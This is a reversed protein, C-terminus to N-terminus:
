DRRLTPPPALLDVKSIEGEHGSLTALCEFSHADYIRATMDASATAIRSGTLNIAVDM